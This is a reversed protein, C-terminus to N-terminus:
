VLAPLVSKLHEPREHGIRHRLPAQWAGECNSAWTARVELGDIMKSRVRPVVATNLYVTGTEANVEVMNRLISTGRLKEHMHGFAVLPM